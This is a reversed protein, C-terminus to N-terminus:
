QWEGFYFDNDVHVLLGFGEFKNENLTGIYKSNNELPCKVFQYNFNSDQTM